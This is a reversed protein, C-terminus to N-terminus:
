PTVQVFGTEASVTITATGGNVAITTNGLPTNSADTPKGYKKSFRLSFNSIPASTIPTSYVDAGNRIRYQNAAIREITFAVGRSMSFSQTLRIDAALQLATPGANVNTPWRAIAVAALIGVIVMVMILEITTFGQAKSRM